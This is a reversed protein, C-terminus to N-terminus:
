RRGPLFELFKDATFSADKPCPPVEERKAPHMQKLQELVGPDTPDLFGVQALARAARSIYGERVLSRAKRFIKEVGKKIKGTNNKQDFQKWNQFKESSDVALRREQTKNEVLTDRSIFDVLRKQILVKRKRGRDLHDFKLIRAPLELLRIM